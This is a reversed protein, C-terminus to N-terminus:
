RRATRALGIAVDLARESEAEVDPAVGTHDWNTKTRPDIPAGTSIYVAFGTSDLFSEVPNAAGATLEGILTARKTTQLAYAFSEAASATGPGIVAFLPMRELGALAPEPQSWSIVEPHEASQFTVIAVPEPGLFPGLVYEVMSPWGGPNSRVDVVAADCQSLQDLAERAQRAAHEDDADDFLRITLIGVSGDRRFSITTDDRQSARRLPLDTPAGWTVSFHRDHERLQQTLQRSFEVTTLGEDAIPRQRLERACVAAVDAFVYHREILASIGNLADRQDAASMRRSPPAADPRETLDFRMRPLSRGPISGSPSEGIVVAGHRRYFDAAYPDADLFLETFGARAAQTLAHQLLLGGLGTGIHNPDVFLADLEGRPADGDTAYFGLIGGDQAAVFVRGSACREPTYTLEARCQELFEPSYGWHAKSRLALSSITDSESALAPRITLETM